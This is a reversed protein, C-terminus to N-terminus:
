ESGELRDLWMDLDEQCVRTEHAVYGLGVSGKYVQIIERYLSLDVAPLPSEQPDRM